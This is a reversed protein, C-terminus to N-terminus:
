VKQNQIKAFWFYYIPFFHPVGLGMLWCCIDEQLLTPIKSMAKTLNKKKLELFTRNLSLNPIASATMQNRQQWNDLLKLFYLLCTLFKSILQMEDHLEDLHQM